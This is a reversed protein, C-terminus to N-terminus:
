VGKAEVAANGQGRRGAYLLLFFLCGTVTRFGTSVLLATRSPMHDLMMAGVLPAIAAQLSVLAAHVALFVPRSNPLSVDLLNNLVFLNVGAVGIGTFLNIVVLWQISPVAATLIPALALQIASVAMMRLNGFREARRVLWPYAWMMVASQAVTIVSLWTNDMQLDTVQFRTFIPWAMMWTFHFPISVLTFLLFPRHRFVSLYARLGIPEPAASRHDTDTRVAPEKLRLWWLLELIAVALSAVFMVQYGLPYPFMHDIAWGSAMVIVISAGTSWTNRDAFVRARETAPFVDALFSQQAPGGASNPFVALVWFGILAWIRASEPFWPVAAAGLAAARGLLFIAAIMRQKAGSRAVASAAGLVAVVSLVQPWSSLYGLQLNDAGLKVAFIGIYPNILSQSASAAVANLVNYRANGQM